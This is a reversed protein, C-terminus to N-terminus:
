KPKLKEKKRKANKVKNDITIITLGILKKASCLKGIEFGSFGFSTIIEGYNMPEFKSLIPVLEFYYTSDKQIKLGDVTRERLDKNSLITYREDTKKLFILYYDDAVHINTVLYNGVFTEKSQGLMLINTGLLIVLFLSIKM